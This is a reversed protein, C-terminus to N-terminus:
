SLQQKIGEAVVQISRQTEEPNLSAFGLRLAHFAKWDQVGELSIGQANTYQNLAVLDIEPSFVTWVAMGGDPKQFHIWQGLHQQLLDCFNDRRQGYAKLSKKLHRQLEGDEIFEALAKELVPDGQRDILLRQQSLARVINRPAVVYGTRISPAICKTFSGVYIVVGQTDLSALPLLPSSAYHFDYDYDDEVIAIRHHQALQLLRVRREASLTVTTPYHHHPTLYVARITYKQCLIAVEDVSIGHEDVKVTLIKGKFHQIVENTVPYSSEGVIVRDSPSLLLQLTLYIGMQSGRTILIQEHTCALGRTERLYNALTKRLHEEGQEDGYRLYQKHFKGFAIQRCRKYLGEMPALRVDPSGDTIRLMSKTYTSNRGGGVGAIGVAFAATQLNQYAGTAEHALIQQRVIPLTKSIFTGQSPLVELWDQAMLEDYAAVITKRNVGLQDALYRTGPMKLGPALRGAIIEKIVMNAVQLYVPTSVEKDVSIINKWPYM